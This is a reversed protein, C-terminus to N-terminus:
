GAVNPPPDSEKKRFDSLSVISAGKHDGSEKESTPSNDKPQAPNEESIGQGVPTGCQKCTAVPMLDLRDQPSAILIGPTVFAILSQEYLLCGCVQCPLQKAIDPNFGSGGGGITPIRAM